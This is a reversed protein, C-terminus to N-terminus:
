DEVGECVCGSFLTPPASKIYTFMGLVLFSAEFVSFGGQPIPFSPKWVMCGVARRVEISPVCVSLTSSGSFFSVLFGFHQLQLHWLWVTSRSVFSVSAASIPVCSTM